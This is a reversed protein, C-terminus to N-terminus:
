EKGQVDMAFVVNKFSQKFQIKLYFPLTLSIYLSSAHIQSHFMVNKLGENRQIIIHTQTDTKWKSTGTSHVTELWLFTKFSTKFLQM